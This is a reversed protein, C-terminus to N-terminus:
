PVQAAQLFPRNWIHSCAGMLPTVRLPPQLDVM